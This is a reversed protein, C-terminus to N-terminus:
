CLCSEISGIRIPSRPGSFTRYRSVARSGRRSWSLRPGLAGVLHDFLDRSPSSFKNQLNV